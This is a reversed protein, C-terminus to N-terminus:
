GDLDFTLHKILELQKGYEVQDLVFQQYNTVSSFHGLVPNLSVIDSTGNLYDPLSSWPYTLFQEEKVVFSVLPNLHIYRSVHLLQEDTEILVAKFLGQFIPGIRQYKTNYYKTYSNTFKSMFTTIGGAGSQQLLFHIHNPMLVFSIIKVYTKDLTQLKMMLNEREERALEKFRSLKLLPAQFRYYSLALLAQQYDLKDHFIPQRAIGRNFVHYYQGDALPVRANSM